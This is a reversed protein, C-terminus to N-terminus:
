NIVEKTKKVRKDIYSIIKEYIAIEKQVERVESLDDFIDRLLRAKANELNDELFLRFYDYGKTNTMNFVEQAERDDM